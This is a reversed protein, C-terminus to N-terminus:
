DRMGGLAIAYGVATLPLAAGPAAYSGFRVGVLVAGRPRGGGYLADLRTYALAQLPSPGALGEESLRVTESVRDFSLALAREPLSGPL